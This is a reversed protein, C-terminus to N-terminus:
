KKKHLMPKNQIEIKLKHLLRQKISALCTDEKAYYKDIILGDTDKIIIEDDMLAIAKSGCKTKHTKKAAM